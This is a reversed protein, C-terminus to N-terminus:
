RVTLPPPYTLGLNVTAELPVAQILGNSNFCGQIPSCTQQTGCDVARGQSQTSQLQAPGAAGVYLMLNMGSSDFLTVSPRFGMEISIRADITNILPPGSCNAAPFYVATEEPLWRAGGLYLLDSSQDRQATIHVLTVAGNVNVAVASRGSVPAYMRAAEKGTADIVSMSPIPPPRGGKQAESALPLLALCAAILSIPRKM